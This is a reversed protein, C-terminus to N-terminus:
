GSAGEAQAWANGIWRRPPSRKVDVNGQGSGDSDADRIGSAAQHSSDRFCSGLAPAHANVPIADVCAALACSRPHVEVPHGSFSSLPSALDNHEVLWKRKGDIELSARVVTAIEPLVANSLFPEVVRSLEGVRDRVQGTM